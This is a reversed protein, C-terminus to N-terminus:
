LIPGGGSGTVMTAFNFGRDKPLNHETPYLASTETSSEQPKPLGKPKNSTLGAEDLRKKIEKATLSAQERTYVKM